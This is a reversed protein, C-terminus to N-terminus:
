QGISAAFRQKMMTIVNGTSNHSVRDMFARILLLGRGGIRDVNGEECPDRVANVDFGPGEDRIVTVVETPSLSVTVFVRRSRYPEEECRRAITEHYARENHQRLDSSVELNGHHIANLLAETWAMTLQLLGHDGLLKRRCVAGSLHSILPPIQRTDNDLVFHYETHALCEYLRREEEPSRVSELVRRITPILEDTMQRRPVYSAAGVRLAELAIEDDGRDAMLVLPPHPRTECLSRVLELGSIHPMQLDSVVLDAPRSTQAKLAEAGTSATETSFGAEGLLLAITEAETPDAEIVLVHAV